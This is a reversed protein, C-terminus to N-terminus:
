LRPLLADDTSFFHEKGAMRTLEPLPDHWSAKSAEKAELRRGRYKARFLESRVIDAINSLQFNGCVFHMGEHSLEKASDINAFVHKMTKALEAPTIDLWIPTSALSECAHFSTRNKNPFVCLSREKCPYEQCPVFSSQLLYAYQSSVFDNTSGKDPVIVIKGSALAEMPTLGLGEARAPHVLVDMARYVDAVNDRFGEMVKVRPSSDNRSATHAKSVLAEGGHQYSLNLLLLVDDNPDFASTYAKLLIDLGKRPLAGGVYAFVTTSPSIGLEQRLDKTSRRLARCDVGFPVSRVISADIGSSSYMLSNFSSLTWIFDVHSRMEHVWSEPIYGMEWPQYAIFQCRGRPCCPPRRFDVPWRMRVYVDVYAADTPCGKQSVVDDFTDLFPFVKAVHSYSFSDDNVDWSVSVIRNGSSYASAHKEEFIDPRRLMEERALLLIKKNSQVAGRMSFHKEVFPVSREHMNNWLAVNNYIDVVLESFKEQDAVKVPIERFSIHEMGGLGFSTTLVPTGIGLSRVIKTSIGVKGFVPALTWRARSIALLLDDESAEGHHECGRSTNCEPSPVTGFIHLTAGHTRHLGPVVNSVLWRAAKENEENNFAFYIVDKRDKWGMSKVAGNRRTNYFFPQITPIKGPLLEQIRQTIDVSVGSVVDARSWFYTEVTEYANTQGSWRKHVLDPSVTAVATAPSVREVIQNLDRLFSLYPPHAWLYEVVLEYKRAELEARIVQSSSPLPGIVRVGMDELIHHHNDCDGGPYCFRRFPYCYTVFYGMKQFGLIAGLVYADGGKRHPAILSAHVVMVRRKFIPRSGLEDARISERGRGYKEFIKDESQLRSTKKLHNDMRTLSPEVNKRHVSHKKASSYDLKLSRLAHSYAAANFACSAEAVYCLLIVAIGVCAIRSFTASPRMIQNTASPSSFPSDPFTVKSQPFFSLAIEHHPHISAKEGFTHSTECSM